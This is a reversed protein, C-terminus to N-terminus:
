GRSDPSISKRIAESACGAVAGGLMCLLLGVSSFKAGTAAGEMAGAIDAAVIRVAQKIDIKEPVRSLHHASDRAISLIAIAADGAKTLSEKFMFETKRVLTGIDPAAFVEDILGRLAARDSDNIVNLRVLLDPLKLLRERGAAPARALERSILERAQRHHAGLDVAALPASRQSKAPSVFAALAAGGAAAVFRRRKVDEVM